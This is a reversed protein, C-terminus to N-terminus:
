TLLLSPCRVPRPADCSDAGCQGCVLDPRPNVETYHPAPSDNPIRRSILLTSLWLADTFGRWPVSSTTASISVNMFVSHDLPAPTLSTPPAVVPPPAVNAYEALAPASHEAFSNSQDELPPRALHAALARPPRDVADEAVNAYAAENGALAQGRPPNPENAYVATISATPADRAGSEDNAYVVLVPLTPHPKGAHEM